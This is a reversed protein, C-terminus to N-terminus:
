VVKDWFEVDFISFGVVIELRKMFSIRLIGIVM